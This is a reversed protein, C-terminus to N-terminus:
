TKRRAEPSGRKGHGGPYGHLLMARTSGFEYRDEDSALPAIERRISALEQASVGPGECLKQLWLVADRPDPYQDILAFHLLNRRLTETPTEGAPPVAAWFFRPFREVMTRIARRDEETAHEFTGLVEMLLAQAEPRVQAEDMPAPERDLADLDDLDVQRDAIPRLAADLRALTEQWPFKV